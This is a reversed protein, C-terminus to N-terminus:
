RTAGVGQIQMDNRVSTVGKVSRAISVAKNAEESSKAVGSLRVVGNDTDVHINMASVAKDLAFESKIKTTIWGDEVKETVSASRASSDNRDTACGAFAGALAGAVILCSASKMNM